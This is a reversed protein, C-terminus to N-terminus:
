VRDAPGTLALGAPATWCPSGARFVAAGFGNLRAGTVQRGIVWLLV